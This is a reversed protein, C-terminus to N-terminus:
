RRACRVARHRRPHGATRAARSEATVLLRIRWSSRRSRRSWISRRRDARASRRYGACRRGRRSRCSRRRGADRRCRPLPRGGPRLRRAHAGQAAEDLVADDVSEVASTVFLCGTRACCRCCSPTRWCTSSRSRSTTPSAPFSPPSGSSWGARMRPATSSTRIASPSTSRARGGGARARRGHVVDLPVARFHGHYVPVIPCHRCLHKCGSRRMPTASWAAAHRRADAAGRLPRAGAADDSGAAPVAPAGRAVPAPIRIRAGRVQSEVLGGVTKPRRARARARHGHERLWGTTSRRTCVTPPWQAAPNVARARASSRRRWARPRTCRCTSPSWSPPALPRSDDLPTARRRRRVDVDVGAQRLRRRRRRWAQVAPPRSRLDFGAPRAYAGYYATSAAHVWWGQGPRCRVHRHLGNLVGAEEAVRASEGREEEGLHPLAEAVVPHARQQMRNM